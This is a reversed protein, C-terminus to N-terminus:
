ELGENADRLTAHSAKLELAMDNLKGGVFAFEPSRPTPPEADYNGRGIAEAYHALATTPHIIARAFLLVLFAGGFALILGAALLLVHITQGEGKAEALTKKLDEEHLIQIEEDLIDDLARRLAILENFDESIHSEIEAMKDAYDTLESATAAISMFNPHEAKLRNAIRELEKLHTQLDDRLSAINKARQDLDIVTPASSLVLLRSVHTSVSLWARLFVANDLSLSAQSSLFDRTRTNGNNKGQDSSTQGYITQDVMADADALLKGLETSIEQQATRDGILDEGFAFFRTGLDQAREALDRERDNRALQQYQNVFIQFDKRDETFRVQDSPDARHLFKAVALCSEVVNIEIEFSAVRLPISVEITQELGASLNTASRAILLGAVTLVALFAGFCLCLKWTLSLRTLATMVAM